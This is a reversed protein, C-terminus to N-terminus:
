VMCHYLAPDKPNQGHAAWVHQRMVKGSATVSMTSTRVLSGTNDQCHSLEDQLCSAARRKMTLAMSIFNPLLHGENYQGIINNYNHIIYIIIPQL